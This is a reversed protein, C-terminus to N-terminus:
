YLYRRKLRLRWWRNLQPQTSLTKMNKTTLLSNVKRGHLTLKNVQQCNGTTDCFTRGNATINRNELPLHDNIFYSGGSQNRVNKLNKTSKFILGKDCIHVLTIQVTRPSVMGIRRAASIKIDKRIKLTHKFFASIIGMLSDNNEEESEDLGSIMLNNRMQSSEKNVNYEKLLNIQQAQKTVIGKLMRVEESVKHINVANLNVRSTTTTQHQQVETLKTNFDTQLKKINNIESRMNESNVSLTHFDELVHLADKKMDIRMEKLMYEISGEKLATLEANLQEIEHVLAKRNDSKDSPQSDTDHNIDDDVELQQSTEEFEPENIQANMMYQQQPSQQTSYEAQNLYRHFDEREKNILHSLPEVLSSIVGEKYIAEDGSKSGSQM